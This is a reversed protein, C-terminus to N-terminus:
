NARYRHVIGHSHLYDLALVIEAVYFSAMSDEMYGYMGLLSKLDGGVMYEMVLYVCSLSQLSYFLQVCYPSRVLALANREIVVQSAMNKHIMENKKMVKIAYVQKPNSRKYGLFVKGFAGRSIPKVIKFDQIEPM